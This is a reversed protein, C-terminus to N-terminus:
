RNASWAEILSSSWYRSPLIMAAPTKEPAILVPFWGSKLYGLPIHKRYVMITTFYVTKNFTISNPIEVNLLGRNENTIADAFVKLESMEPHEIKQNKLQYLERSIIALKSLNDDFLYDPSCVINAPHNFKGKEFLLNNAQVLHAWVVMGRKMLIRQDRYLALFRKDRYKIMWWQPLLLNYFFRELSFGKSKEEFRDRTHNLCYAIDTGM